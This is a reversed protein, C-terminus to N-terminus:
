RPWVLRGRYTGDLKTSSRYTVSAMVELVYTCFGIEHVYMREVIWAAWRAGLMCMGVVYLADYVVSEWGFVM